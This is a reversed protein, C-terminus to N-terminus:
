LSGKPRHASTLNKSGLGTIPRRRGLITEAYGLKAARAITEDMFKRISKYRAFYDDIFRKAESQPIGISQSLGFPGQGYIIGFNVAKAKTRMESTVDGIDLGYIQSAVFAHIDRDDAFAKRLAQDNSFHALLRLEIQSYDASLIVADKDGGVFAARIQRGLDTRIPINQLNPNSSSLRGTATVTQNFSAHVRGTRRNILVPLKDIYTNKLKVLRRYELIFPVVPHRDCLQELVDADTSRQTKGSRISPLGLHDFLIEALQKPSDINFPLGAQAHIKDTLIDIQATISESMKKLISADIAVGNVELRVLVQVLPMELREFLEKLAPQGDLRASLYQWLQYTIDADEASYRCATTTDVRDFTIQNKGKGILDSIPITQYDLFDRAMADLSHSQRDPALCYSAVMTDFCKGDELAVPLGANELIILDYKLNQGIKFRQPDALIPALAPRIKDLELHKQGLPGRVPLYFARDASFCFSIGVLEARMPDISTTETDLAFCKQTRFEKYFSDFKGPTDILLYEKKDTTASAAPHIDFLSKQAPKKEEAKEPEAAKLGLQNLLRTFGLQSFIGALRERDPEPLAFAKEDLEVPADCDITVLTKSLFAKDKFKRLNEGRKGTIEDAHKYLNELSHYKGIWDVATKPGVDPVGPVNDATDGQLALADIFQEPALHLDQKMKEVDTVQGTKIDYTFVHKDLLQLMDKDKSCIYADMGAASAKKALTGIIDDAEYGEVRLVPIRMAELIEEILDIQAPMDEPMPPRHAKYEPYIKARFSPIKSDMTVVLFDPKQKEILGLIASTFVFVAKTPQGSPSTLPRMPAFYAAYIHAHGDIIFM